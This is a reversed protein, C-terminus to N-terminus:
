RASELPILLDELESKPLTLLKVKHDNWGYSIEFSSTTSNYIVGCPFVAANDWLPTDDLINGMELPIRTQQLLQFCGDVEKFTYCGM